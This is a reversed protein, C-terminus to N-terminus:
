ELFCFFRFLHTFIGGLYNGKQIRIEGPSRKKVPADGKKTKKQGDIGFLSIQHGGSNDSSAAAAAAAAAAAPTATPADVATSSSNKSAEEAAQKAEERKKKLALM